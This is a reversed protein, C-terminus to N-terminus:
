LSSAVPTATIPEAVSGALPLARWLRPPTREANDDLCAALRHQSPLHWLWFRWREARDRLGPDLALRITGPQSLDFGFQGLPLALGLGRAKIYAEKLTWYDFFRRRQETAPLVRLQRCEAAAFFREAVELLRNDRDTNEVDVGVPPGHGVACVLLGDAHSLNFSLRQGELNAIAPKGHRNTIFRWAEPALPVYHSLTTRVLARALLYQRRMPPLRLREFRARETADLLDQYINLLASDVTEPHLLWLELGTDASRRKLTGTM